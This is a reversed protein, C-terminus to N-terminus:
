GHGGRGGCSLGCDADQDDVVSGGGEKAFEGVRVAVDGALTSIVGGAGGAIDCMATQMKILRSRPLSGFLYKRLLVASIPTCLDLLQM